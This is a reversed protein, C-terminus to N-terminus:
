WPRPQSFGSQLALCCVIIWASLSSASAVCASISLPSLETSVILNKGLGPADSSGFDLSFKPVTCVTSCLTGTLLMPLIGLFVRDYVFRTSPQSLAMAANLLRCDELACRRELPPDQFIGLGLRAAVLQCGQLSIHTKVHAGVSKALSKM